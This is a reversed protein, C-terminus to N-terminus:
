HVAHPEMGNQRILAFALDYTAAAAIQTGDAGFIGFILGQPTQISRVYAIDPAGLVALADPTIHRLHEFDRTM